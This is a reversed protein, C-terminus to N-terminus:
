EKPVRLVIAVFEADSEAETRAAGMTAEYSITGKPVALEVIGERDTLPTALEVDGDIQAVSSYVHVSPTAVGPVYKCIASVRAAPVARGTEDKVLVRVTRPAPERVVVEADRGVDVRVATALFGHAYAAFDAVGRRVAEFRVYGDRDTIGGVNAGSVRVRSAPTGDRYLVKVALPAPSDARRPSGCSSGGSGSMGRFEKEQRVLVVKVAQASGPEDLRIDEVTAGLEYSADDACARTLHIRLNAFPIRPLGEVRLLGTEDSPTARFTLDSPNEERALRTDAWEIEAGDVPRGDADVTRFLIERAPFVPVLLRVTRTRMAVQGEWKYPDIAGFGDPPAVRVCANANGKRDLALRLPSTDEESREIWSFTSARWTAGSLPAGTSGDVIGVALTPVREIRVETVPEKLEVDRDKEGDFISVKVPEMGVAFSAEGKADTFASHEGTRVWVGSVPDGGTALLRLVRKEAPTEGAQELRIDSATEGPPAEDAAATAPELAAHRRPPRSPETAAAVAPERVAAREPGHTDDRTWWLLVGIVVLVVAALTRRLPTTVRRWQVATTCM